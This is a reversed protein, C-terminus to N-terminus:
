QESNTLSITRGDRTVRANARITIGDGEITVAGRDETVRPEAALGSVIVRRVGDFLPHAGDAYTLAPHGLLEISARDNALKVFRAHLVTGPALLQVNLPDFSNPWLPAAPTDVVIRWGDRALFADLTKAHQQDLAAVDANARALAARREDATLSCTTPPASRALLEDLSPADDRELTARWGPQLRDLLRGLALGTRYARARIADPVFYPDPLVAAASSALARQEVYTALGENLETGREYAVAAAPMRAFRARREDLAARTWCVDVVLARRLAEAELRQAAVLSADSSPYLFLDAENAAWRPHHNRQYVHFLEHVVLAARRPLPADSQPPLVTATEVGGLQVSTNAMVIRRESVFVGPHEALPRFEPPPSPHRFLLTRTGDDLAVPMTRPDFGPWLDRTAAADVAALLAFADVAPPAATRCAALASVLVLLLTKM